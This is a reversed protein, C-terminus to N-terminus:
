EPAGAWDNTRWGSWARAVILPSLARETAPWGIQTGAQGVALTSFIKAEVDPLLALTAPREYLANWPREDVGAAYCSAITDYDTPGVMPM